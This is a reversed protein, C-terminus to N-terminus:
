QEEEVTHAEYFEDRNTFQWRSRSRVQDRRPYVMSAKLQGLEADTLGEEWYVSLWRKAPLLPSIFGDIKETSPNLPYHEFAQQLTNNQILKAQLPLSLPCSKRGLYLTFVPQALAQVLQTLSFPLKETKGWIAVQYVADMRYDRQSLMTNLNLSDTRLEDRRTAYTRKGGMMQITHYDRLIEGSAQVCVAMGYNQALTQQQEEEERKIGLAAALLGIIASKSPHGQSPRHEGVAIDGWAAMAGYLQFVLFDPM